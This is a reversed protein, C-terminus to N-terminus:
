IHDLNSVPLVEVSANLFHLCWQPTALTRDLREKIFNGSYQKNHWTYKSRCFGLDWLNYDLITTRFRDMQTASHIEGGFKESQDIIENFDGLCLWAEPNMLCLHSLLKWSLERLERELHGYFGTFSWSFNSHPQTIKASIHRQSYNVIEVMQDDKSFLALGGCRGVPDM